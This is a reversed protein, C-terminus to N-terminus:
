LDLITLSLCSLKALSVTLDGGHVPKYACCVCGLFALLFTFSKQHYKCLSNVDSVSNNKKMAAIPIAANTSSKSSSGMCSCARCFAAAVVMWDKQRATRALCRVFM